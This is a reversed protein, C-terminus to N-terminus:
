PSATSAIVQYTIRIEDSAGKNISATGLATRAVAAANAANTAHLGVEHIQAAGAPNNSAFTAEYQLTMDGAKTATMTGSANQVSLHVIGTSALLGSQTSAAATTQTGIGMASVWRSAGDTDSSLMAVLRDLGHTCMINGIREIRHKVKGDPGVVEAQIRNQLPLPSHNPNIIPNALGAASTPRTIGALSM